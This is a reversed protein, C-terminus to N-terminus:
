VLMVSIILISFLVHDQTQCLANKAFYTTANKASKPTLLLWKAFPVNFCLHMIEKKNMMSEKESKGGLSNRQM